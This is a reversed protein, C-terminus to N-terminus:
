KEYENMLYNYVVTLNEEAITVKAELWEPLNTDEEILGNAMVAYRSITKLQNLAMSGEGYSENIHDDNFVDEALEKFFMVLNKKEKSSRKNPHKKDELEDEEEETQSSYIETSELLKLIIKNKFDERQM